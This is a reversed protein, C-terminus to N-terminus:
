IIIYLTNIPLKFSSELDQVWMQQVGVISKSHGVNIIEVSIPSSLTTPYLFPLKTPSDTHVNQMIVIGGILGPTILMMIRHVQIIRYHIYLTCIGHMNIGLYGWENLALLTWVQQSGQILFLSPNEQMM